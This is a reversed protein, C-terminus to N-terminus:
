SGRISYVVYAAAQTFWRGALAGRAPRTSKTLHAACGSGILLGAGLHGLLRHAPSKWRVAITMMVTHPKTPQSIGYGPIRTPRPRSASLTSSQARKREGRGTSAVSLNPRASM